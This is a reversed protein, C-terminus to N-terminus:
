GGESVRIITETNAPIQAKRTKPNQVSIWETPKGDDATVLATLASLEGALPSVADSIELLLEARLDSINKSTEARTANL